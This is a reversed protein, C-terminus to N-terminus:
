RGGAVVPPSHPVTVQVGVEPDTKGTPIVVTVQLVIAPGVQAKVTM